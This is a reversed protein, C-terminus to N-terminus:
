SRGFNKKFEAQQAADTLAHRPRPVQRTQKLRQLSDWGRQVQVPRGLKAAMWDAVARATWHKGGDPAPGALAVRLEERCARGHAHASSALVHHAAQEGHGGAGRRQLAQRNAWDLHAHLGHEPRHGQGAAWPGAAVPDAVVHARAARAGSPLAAGIRRREPADGVTDTEHGWERLATLSETDYWLQAAGIQAGHQIRTVHKAYGTYPVLVRGDLSLISVQQGTKFGYDHGLQYTLTPAVYKPAQDLGRDRQKTHGATRAAANAKVKTWLTKDTAGVQHPVSCALQAPLGFRTRIDRYTADQLAVTNSLKGHAFAYRSVFNLADRSALQTQRLARFQEPTTHLKLKATM